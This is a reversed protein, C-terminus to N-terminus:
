FLSPWVRGLGINKCFFFRLTSYFIFFTAEARSTPFVPGFWKPGIEKPMHNSLRVRGLVRTLRASWDHWALKLVELHWMCKTHTCTGKQTKKTHIVYLRM